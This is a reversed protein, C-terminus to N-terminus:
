QKSIQALNPAIQASVQGADLLPLGSSVVSIDVRSQTQGPLISVPFARLQRWYGGAAGEAISQAFLGPACCAAAIATGFVLDVRGISLGYFQMNIQAQGALSGAATAWSDAAISAGGGAGAVGIRTSGNAQSLFGNDAAAATQSWAYNATLFSFPFASVLEGSIAVTKTSTATQPELGLASAMVVGTALASGVSVQDMEIESLQRPGGPSSDAVTECGSLILSVVLAACGVRNSM